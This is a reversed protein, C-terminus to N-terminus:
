NEPLLIERKGAHNPPSIVGRQEMKEIIIAANNYGINLCRQIYSITAKREKQVIQLAMKYHEERRREVESETNELKEEDEEVQQTVASIYDPTGTSRLYETIKEVEQDDVFPGHVRSIKAANGMYLMDGMGLLQESGQEGLITRSDIKSTVKFSIRSPFNAKIVGTIVDVSPRQTAMIIHIGAARAMQALRQISLEIDKGAVLMLDAMEDVIVVIFPLKQMNIEITEYIPKGTDPDFGTQITREIPKGEKIAESIKSNYGAINRVGINSMARYRNEMEKVAWKLAVVAKTAETVVPTLLHPIGDYASLELMKPDIMILRCEEPTYRYLLSIIMTNIAVSKGSGTTGAVLLHPMKALDAIFPKGALDKGLILPLMIHNDQYESTEILERLCFFARQKNPLEIGLVNRGPIVAIRTSIASLSRAIDESLGIVRSSKTGAAPEFEYLTVVPGQSINIIQGKVGFDGLVTLLIQSNQQLEEASEMKINQINAPKLLEVPPLNSTFETEKPYSSQKVFSPNIDINNNISISRDPTITEQSIASAKSILTHHNSPSNPSLVVPPGSSSGINLASILQRIRALNKWLSLFPVEILLFLFICTTLFLLYPIRYDLQIILPYILTGITGGAGAPLSNTKIKACLISLSIICIIMLMIRVSLWKKQLRWLSLSWFICCLPLLFSSLGFIQYFIDAIYSGFYGLLNSPFKDTVSNFSPDEPNYTVLLLSLFCGFLILIISQLRNNTLIKNIYYLM